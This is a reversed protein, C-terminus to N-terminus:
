KKKKMDVKPCGLVARHGRHIGDGRISRNGGHLLPAIGDIGRHRCAQREPHHITVVRAKAAQGTAELSLMSSGAAMLTGNIFDRRTIDM